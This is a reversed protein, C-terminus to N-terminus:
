AGRMGASGNARLATEECRLKSAACNERLATETIGLLGPRAGPTPGRPGWLFPGWPPGPGWGGGGPVWGAGWGGMGGVKVCRLPGKPAGPGMPATPIIEFSNRISHKESPAEGIAMWANCLHPLFPDVEQGRLGKFFFKLCTSAWGASVLIGSASCWGSFTTKTM